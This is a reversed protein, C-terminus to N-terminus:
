SAMDTQLTDWTHCAPVNYGTNIICVTNVNCHCIDHLRQLNHVKVLSEKRYYCCSSSLSSECLRTQSLGLNPADRSGGCLKGKRKMKVEMGSM